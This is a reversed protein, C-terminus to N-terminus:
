PLVRGGTGTQMDNLLERISVIMGTGVCPIKGVDDPGNIFPSHGGPFKVCRLEGGYFIFYQHNM